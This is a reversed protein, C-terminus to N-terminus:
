RSTVRSHKPSPQWGKRQPPIYPIDDTTHGVGAVVVEGDNEVVVRKYNADLRVGGDEEDDGDVEDDEDEEADSWLGMEVYKGAAVNFQVSNGAAENNGTGDQRPPPYKELTQRDIASM